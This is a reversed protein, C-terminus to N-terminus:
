NGLDKKLQYLEALEGEIKKGETDLQFLVNEGVFYQNPADVGELTVVTGDEAWVYKGQNVIAAGMKGVYSVSKSYTSDTLILTVEMGEGSATPLTGRYTGAYDLSNKANHEDKFAQEQSPTSAVPTSEAEAKKGGGCSAALVAVLVALVVKKM